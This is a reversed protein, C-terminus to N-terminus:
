QPSEHSPINQWIPCRQLTSSDAQTKYFFNTFFYGPEHKRFKATFDSGTALVGSQGTDAAESHSFHCCVNNGIYIAGQCRRKYRRVVRMERQFASYRDTPQGPKQVSQLESCLTLVYHFCRHAHILLLWESTHRFRSLLAECVACFM